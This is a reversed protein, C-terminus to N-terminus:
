VYTVCDVGFDEEGACENRFDCRKGMEQSTATTMVDVIIWM